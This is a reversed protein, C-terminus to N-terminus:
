GGRTGQKVRACESHMWVAVDPSAGAGTRETPGNEDMMCEWANAAERARNGM